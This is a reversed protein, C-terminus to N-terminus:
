SNPGDEGEEYDYDTGEESEEEGEEDVFLIREGMGQVWCVSNDDDLGMMHFDRGLKLNADVVQMVDETLQDTADFKSLGKYSVLRDYLWDLMNVEAKQLVKDLLDNDGGLGATDTAM